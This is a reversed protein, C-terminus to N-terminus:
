WVPVDTYSDFEGRVRDRLPVSSKELDSYGKFMRLDKRYKQEWDDLNMQNLSHLYKEADPNNLGILWDKIKQRRNEAM